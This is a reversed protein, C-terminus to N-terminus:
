AFQVFEVVFTFEGAGSTTSSTTITCHVTRPAATYATSIVHTTDDQVDHVFGGAIAADIAVKATAADTGGPLSVGMAPYTVAGLAVTTGGDLIEDAQAVLIEGGAASTGIDYGIDGSGVTISDTCVIYSNTLLSNAPQTFTTTFNAAGTAAVPVAVAITHKVNTSVVVGTLTSAGDVVLAGSCDIAAASAITAGTITSSTMDLDRDLLEVLAELRALGLKGAM